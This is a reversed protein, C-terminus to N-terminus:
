KKASTSKFIAGIEDAYDKGENETIQQNEFLDFKNAAVALVVNFIILRIISVLM